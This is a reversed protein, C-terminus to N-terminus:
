APLTVKYAEALDPHKKGAEAVCEMYPWDPHERQVRAIVEAFVRRAGVVGTATTADIDPIDDDTSSGLEGFQVIGGNTITKICEEFDTITAKGEGFKKHVDIVKQLAVASLGQRTDKLGYGESKRIKQVSEAFSKATNERDREMLKKHESWYQPYQEAFIREQESASVADRLAALEGFRIKVTEVIKADDDVDLVNRLERLEKETLEGVTSGGKSPDSEHFEHSSKDSFNKSTSFFYKVQWAVDLLENRNKKERALGRNISNILGRATPKNPADADNEALTYSNLASSSAMLYGVLQSESFTAIDEAIPPTNVRWGGERDPEDHGDEDTRPEPPTGTGPESHEWEKSEDVLDFGENKLLELIEAMELDPHAYMLENMKSGAGLLKRARAQLRNKVDESMGKMQPIRAIANRLHPMDIKGDPGKYPLHRLSRPVTKGDSDKQGGSEIFLFCSDPLNNVFATSWVAMEYDAPIMDGGEFIESFNIPELGKAVPRNTLAGGMMVDTYTVGDPHMWEDDWELSFYKWEKAKLENKANETFDIGLLLKGDSYRADRIWGAAKNGKAVDVGHDYNIAIEQGRVNDHFNKVINMIKQEDVEVAGYAPTHYTKTAIAEVWALGDDSLQASDAFCFFANHAEEGHVRAKDGLRAYLARAQALAEEKTAHWRGNVDRTELNVVAWPKSKDPAKDPWHFVQYLGM